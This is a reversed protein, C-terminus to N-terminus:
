KMFPADIHCYFKVTFVTLSIGLQQCPPVPMLRAHKDQLPGAKLEQNGVDPPELSHIGQVIQAGINVYTCVWVYVGLKFISIFDKSFQFWIESQICTCLYQQIIYLFTIFPYFWPRTSNKNSICSYSLIISVFVFLLSTYIERYEFIFILLHQSSMQYFGTNTSM